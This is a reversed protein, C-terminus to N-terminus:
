QARKELATIVREYILDLDLLRGEALEGCALYGFSTPLVSVGWSELKALNGITAPHHFMQHNMAPAVLYPKSKMDFSLFTASVVDDASGNALKAITSATAPCLLAIDAWKALAIHGPLDSVSYIDKIIPKGTIGHFTSDGIFQTTNKTCTAQVEYGAQVLRSMLQCAKFGAISGSLQFLIRAKM